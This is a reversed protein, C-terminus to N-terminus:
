GKINSEIGLAECVKVIVFPDKNLADLVNRFDACVLSKLEDRSYGDGQLKATYDSMNDVLTEIIYPLVSQYDTALASARDRGYGGAVSRYDSSPVTVNSWDWSEEAKIGNVNNEMVQSSM